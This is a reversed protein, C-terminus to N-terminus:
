AHVDPAAQAGAAPPPSLAVRLQPLRQAVAAAVDAPLQPAELELLRLAPMRALVAGLEALTLRAPRAKISLHGLSTAATLAEPLMSFDNHDLM